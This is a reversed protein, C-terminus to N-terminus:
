GINLNDNEIRNNKIKNCQLCLPQVDYITYNFGEPAKSLPIIHDLTLNSIGIFTNCRQCLGKSESLKNQWENHTFLHLHNYERARRAKKYFRAMENRQNLNYFYFQKHKNNCFLQNIGQISVFQKNCYKCNIIIPNYRKNSRNQIFSLKSKYKKTSNLNKIKKYYLEDAIHKKLKYQKNDKNKFRHLRCASRYRNIRNIEKWMYNVPVDIIQIM